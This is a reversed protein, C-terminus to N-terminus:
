RDRRRRQAVGLVALGTVLLLLAAPAPIDRALVIIIGIDQSMLGLHTLRLYVEFQGPVDLTVLSPNLPSEVTGLGTALLTNGGLLWEAQLLSPDVNMLISGSGDM